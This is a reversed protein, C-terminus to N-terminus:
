RSSTPALSGNRAAADRDSANARTSEARLASAFARVVGPDFWAGTQGEIAALASAAGPTCSGDGGDRAFSFYAECVAIIRAGMPIQEGSLGEPYGSGDYREYSSRVIPALDSLSPASSVIRAGILPHRRIFAREDEELQQAPKALVSDPIGLKGINYLRAAVGIRAVEASDLELEEATRRALECIETTQQQPDAEHEAMAAALAATLEGVVTARKSGKQRYLRQDALRLADTTTSAEAPLCCCGFSAAITFREGAEALATAVRQAVEEARSEDCAALLCFEDGGMRYVTGIGEAARRLNAGLRMLLADGAQHGFTDNYSKFGDLDYLAVLLSDGDQLGALKAELDCDLARRNGLATLHDTVAEQRSKALLGEVREHLRQSRRFYFAFALLLLAIVASAGAIEEGRATEARSGYARNVQAFGEQAASGAVALRQAIEVATTSPHGDVAEELSTPHLRLNQLGAEEAAVYERIGRALASIGSVHPLARLQSSAPRLSTLGSEVAQTYRNTISAAGVSQSFGTAASVAGAEVGNFTDQIRALALQARRSSDARASLDVVVIAGTAALLLAVILPLRRILGRM